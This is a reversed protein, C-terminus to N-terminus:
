LKYQRYLYAEAKEAESRERLGKLPDLASDISTNFSQLNSEPFFEMLTDEKIMNTTLLSNVLGKLGHLLQNQNLIKM